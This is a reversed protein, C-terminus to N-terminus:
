ASRRQATKAQSSKVLVPGKRVTKERAPPRKAPGEQVSKRLADMLSVVKTSKAPKEEKPLPKHKLKAEVLKQLAAEYDDVFKKPQFPHIGKKILEVALALQDASVVHDKVDEFYEAPSRLEKSYRLTYGMMGKEKKDKPAMLAILHERGAFTVEGLAAKNSKRLAERITAFAAAQQDNEPVVFYPNEYYEAPIQAVDVFSEVEMTDKSAIRLKKIEDPEFTVYEGKAYEYGKVVDTNEVASDGEVVKRQRVREGTQRDIQHFRVQSAPSTAAFLKVGFSVLSIQIHGSWTPRTAM